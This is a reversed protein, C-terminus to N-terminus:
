PRTAVPHSASTFPSPDSPVESTMTVWIAVMGDEGAETAFELVPAMISHEMLGVRAGTIRLTPDETIEEVQELLPFLVADRLSCHATFGSLTTAFVAEEPDYGYAELGRVFANFTVGCAAPRTLAPPLTSQLFRASAQLLRAFKRQDTDPRTVSAHVSSSNFHVSLPQVRNRRHALVHPQQRPVAEVM